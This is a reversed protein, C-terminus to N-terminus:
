AKIDVLTVTKGDSTKGNKFEAPINYERISEYLLNYDGECEKLLEAFINKIVTGGFYFKNPKETVTFCWVQEEKGNKQYVVFECNNIHVTKGHEILEQTDGKEKGVMIESLTTAEQAVKRLDLAM